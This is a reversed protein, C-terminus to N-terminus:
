LFKEIKALTWSCINDNYKEKITEKAMEKARKDSNASINQFFLPLPDKPCITLIYDSYKRNEIFCRCPNTEGCKPCVWLDAMKNEKRRAVREENEKRLIEIEDWFETEKSPIPIKIEDLCRPCVLGNEVNEEETRASGGHQICPMSRPREYRGDYKKAEAEEGMKYHAEHCENSGTPFGCGECPTTWDEGYDEFGYDYTEFDWDPTFLWEEEM